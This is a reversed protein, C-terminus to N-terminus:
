NWTGVSARWHIVTQFCAMPHIAPSTITSRAIPLTTSDWSTWSPVTYYLANLGRYTTSAGWQEIRKGDAENRSSILCHVQSSRIINMLLPDPLEIQTGSRLIDAWYATVDALLDESGRLQSCEEIEM